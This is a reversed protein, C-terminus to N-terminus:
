LLRYFTRRSIGLYSSIEAPKAIGLIAPYRELLKQLREAPRDYLLSRMRRIGRAQYQAMMSEYAMAMSPLKRLEQLDTYKIYLLRTEQKCVLNKASLGQSFFGSASTVFEGKSSFLCVQYLPEAPYYGMVFGSNIFWLKDAPTGKRQLLKGAPHEEEHLLSVMLEKDARLPSSCASLTQFLLDTDM